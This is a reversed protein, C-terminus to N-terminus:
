SVSTNDATDFSFNNIMKWEKTPLSLCGSIHTKNREQFADECQTSYIICYPIIYHVEYSMQSQFIHVHNLSLGDNTKSTYQSIYLCQQSKRSCLLSVFHYQANGGSTIISLSIPLTMDISILWPYIISKLNTIRLYYM